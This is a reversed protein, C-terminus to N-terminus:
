ALREPSAERGVNVVALGALDPVAFGWLAPHFRLVCPFSAALGFTKLYVDTPTYFHM